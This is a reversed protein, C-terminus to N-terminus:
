KNSEEWEKALFILFNNFAYELIERKEQTSSPIKISYERYETGFSPVGYKEYIIVANGGEQRVEYISIYNLFTSVKYYMVGQLRGWDYSELLESEVKEFFQPPWLFDSGSLSITGPEAEYDNKEVTYVEGHNIDDTFFAQMWIDLVTETVDERLRVRDGIKFM